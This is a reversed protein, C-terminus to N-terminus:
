YGVNKHQSKYLTKRMRQDIQNFVQTRDLKEFIEARFREM